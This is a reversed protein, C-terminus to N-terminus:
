NWVTPEATAVGDLAQMLAASLAAAVTRAALPDSSGAPLVSAYGVEIEGDVIRASVVVTAICDPDSKHVPSVAHAGRESLADTADTHGRKFRMGALRDAAEGLNM